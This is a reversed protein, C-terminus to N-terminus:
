YPAMRLKTGDNRCPRQVTPQLQLQNGTDDCTWLFVYGDEGSTYLKADLSLASRVVGTHGGPSFSARVESQEFLLLQGSSSGGLTLVNDMWDEYFACVLYGATEDDCLLPSSRAHDSVMIRTGFEDDKVSYTFLEESHGLFCVLSRDPGAFAFSRPAEDIGFPRIDEVANVDRIVCLGDEGASFLFDDNVPHFNLATIEDACDNQITKWVICLKELGL